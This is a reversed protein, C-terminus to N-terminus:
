NLSNDQYMFYVVYNKYAYKIYVRSDVYYVVIKDDDYTEMEIYKESELMESEKIPKAYIMENYTNIFEAKDINELGNVQFKYVNKETEEPLAKKCYM